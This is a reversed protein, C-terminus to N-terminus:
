EEGDDDSCVAVLLKENLEIDAGSLAENGGERTDLVLEVESWEESSPGANIDSTVYEPQTWIEEGRMIQKEAAKTYFYVPLIVDESETLLFFNQMGADLNARSFSLTPLGIILHFPSNVLLFYELKVGQGKFTTPVSLSSGVRSSIYRNEITVRREIYTQSLFFQRFLEASMINPFAGSDLLYWVVYRLVM